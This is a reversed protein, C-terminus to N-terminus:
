VWFRCLYHHETMLGTQILAPSLTSPQSFQTSQCLSLMRINTFGSSVSINVKQRQKQLQKTSHEDDTYSTSFLVHCTHVWWETRSTKLTLYTPIYCSTTRLTALPWSGESIITGTYIQRPSINIYTDTKISVDFVIKTALWQTSGKCRNTTYFHGDGNIRQWLQEVWRWFVLGTGRTVYRFINTVWIYHIVFVQKTLKTDDQPLVQSIGKKQSWWINTM